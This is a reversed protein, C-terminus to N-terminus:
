LRVVGPVKRHPKPRDTTLDLRCMPRSWPPRKVSLMVTRIPCSNGNGPWISACDGGAVILGHGCRAWRCEPVTPSPKTTTATARRVHDAGHTSGAATHLLGAQLVAALERGEAAAEPGPQPDPLTAAPGATEDNPRGPRDLSVSPRRQRQRHVDYCRRTAIRMLWAAFSGGRFDQLHRYAAIFTEQAADDATDPDGTLRWCLGYVRDQYRVVLRNFASATAARHWRLWGRM